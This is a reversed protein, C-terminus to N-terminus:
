TIQRAPILHLSDRIAERIKQNAMQLATVKANCLILGYLYKPSILEVLLTVKQLPKLPLGRARNVANILKDIITGSELGESLTYHIGLYKLVSSPRAGPVM